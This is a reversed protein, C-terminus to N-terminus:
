NDDWVWQYGGASKRKGECCERIHGCSRGDSSIYKSAATCSPFFIEFGNILNIGKVPRINRKQQNQQKFDKKYESITKLNYNRLWQRITKGTVGFLKGLMDASVNPLEKTILFDLEERTPKNIVSKETHNSSVNHVIDAYIIQKRIPYEIDSQRWVKGCNIDSVTRWSIHGIKNAIERNTSGHMLLDVVQNFWIPKCLKSQNGCKSVNYGYPVYTNYYDAWYSERSDLDPINCQELIEWTFNELGYKRFARSLLKNYENSCINFARQKEHKWRKEINISQGIYSKDNLLNTIKYIGISM